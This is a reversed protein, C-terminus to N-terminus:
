GEFTFYSGCSQLATNPHWVMPWLQQSINRKYLRWQLQAAGQVFSNVGFWMTHRMSRMWLTPSHKLTFYSYLGGTYIHKISIGVHAYYVLKYRTPSWHRDAASRLVNQHCTGTHALVKAQWSWAKHAVQMQLKASGLIRDFANSAWSAFLLQHGAQTGRFVIGFCPYICTICSAGWGWSPPTAVWGGGCVCWLGVITKNFSFIKTKEM